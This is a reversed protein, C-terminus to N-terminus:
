RDGACWDALLRNFAERRDLMVMHAAGGFVHLDAHPILRMLRVAREVPVSPDEAAWMILVPMVLQGLHPHIYKEQLRAYNEPDTESPTRRRFMEIQGSAVARRYNERLMLEFQADAIKSLRSNMLIFGDETDAGGRYDYAARSAAIWDRDLEGGLRPATGGSTVIALRAALDPRLIAMRAAM